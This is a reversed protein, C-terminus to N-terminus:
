LVWLGGSKSDGLALSADGENGDGFIPSRHAMGARALLEIFMDVAVVEGTPNGSLRLGCNIVGGQPLEKGGRQPLCVASILGLAEGHRFSIM